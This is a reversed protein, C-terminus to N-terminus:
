KYKEEMDSSIRTVSNPYHRDLRPRIIQCIKKDIVITEYIMGPTCNVGQYKYLNGELDCFENNGCYQLEYSNKEKLRYTTNTKTNVIILGDCQKPPPTPLFDNLTYYKQIMLGDFELQKMYHLYFDVTKLEVPIEEISLIDIIYICDSSVREVQFEVSQYNINKCFLPMSYEVMDEFQACMKYMGETVRYFQAVGYVGDIKFSYVCENLSTMQSLKGFKRRKFIFKDKKLPTYLEIQKEPSISMELSVYERAKCLNNFKTKLKHYLSNFLPLHWKGNIEYEYEFKLSCLEQSNCSVSIREGQKEALIYRNKVTAANPELCASIQFLKYWSIPWCYQDYELSTVHKFFTGNFYVFKRKQVIKRDCKLNKIRFGNPWLILREERICGGIENVIENIHVFPINQYCVNLRLEIERNCM